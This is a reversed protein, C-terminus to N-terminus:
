APKEEEALRLLVSGESVQAGEGALIEAIVGARPAALTMEMKMAEMVVLIEGKEVSAETSKFIQKV